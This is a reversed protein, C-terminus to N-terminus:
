DNEVEFDWAALVPARDGQQPAWRMLGEGTLTYARLEFRATHHPALIAPPAPQGAVFQPHGVQGLHDLTTFDAARIAVPASAATVTVTWTCTTAPAVYPLGEGPVQPGTVTMLVSSTGLLVRVADGETSLAPRSASGTLTSDAIVASSPLYTPLSGYSDAATAGSAGSSCGTILGAAALGIM